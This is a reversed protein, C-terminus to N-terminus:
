RRSYRKFCESLTSVLIIIVIVIYLFVIRDRYINSHYPNTTTTTTTPEISKNRETSKMTTLTEISSSSTSSIDDDVVFKELFSTTRSRSRDIIFCIYIFLPFWVTLMMEIRDIVSFLSESRIIDFRYQTSSRMQDQEQHGIM